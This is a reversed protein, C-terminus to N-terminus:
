LDRSQLRSGTRDEAMNEKREESDRCPAIDSDGEASTRAVLSAVGTHREDVQFALGKYNGPKPSNLKGRQWRQAVVQVPVSGEM